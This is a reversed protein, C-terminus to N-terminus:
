IKKISELDTKLIATLYAPIEEKKFSDGSLMFLKTYGCKYLVDALELGRMSVGPGFNNDLCIKTDKPYHAIQELFDRPNHFCKVTKNYFIYDQLNKTFRQDDDVIILDVAERSHATNEHATYDFNEEIKIPISSASQKPIIKTGLRVTRDQIDQRVYHSTVLLSRAINTHEIVDLGNLNQRLLEYDTLLFVKQKDAVPLNNIFRIAKQGEEFHKLQIGPYTKLIEKFYVGWAAHISSDDDLIVVTDESGLHVEEAFWDPVKARPFTLTIKTGKDVISDISLKGENHEMAENIQTYGIGHGGRKDHTVAINSMIKDVIEAPMGKGDDQIIINVETATALLKLIIKGDRGDFAGVANNIINSLARKFETPDIKIFVAYSDKDFEDEFKIPLKKYESKKVSLLQLLGASVFMPQRNDERHESANGATEIKGFELLENAIDNMTVLADRMGLREREPIAKADLSGVILKLSAIPSRIDHAVQNAIKTFKTQQYLAQKHVENELMLREVEKRGIEIKLREAERRDTIDLCIGIVGIIKNNEILPSKTTESIVTRDLSPINEVRTITKGTSIVYQDDKIYGDAFKKWPLDYDNKGILESYDSFGSMALFLKNCGSFTGDLNKWFMACPAHLLIPDLLMSM